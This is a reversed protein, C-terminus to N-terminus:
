DWSLVVLSVGQRPLEFDVTAAGDSAEVERPEHLEALRSAQELEAYQRRGPAVPKGMRLWADYSNSHQKDVRYHSLKAKALSDPLGDIKLAVAADPGALDDDHYHWVLVAVSNDTRSALAGVDPERRVGRRMIRELPLQGSSEATVRQGDMKSMMRFVNLVPMALGNSALQRFGAFYPQDEFTFAWTLAGAFNIGHKDALDHKRAFSAATYSSYMTGNRYSFQDGQCAACGEPDSEGIVIPTDRLQPFEAVIGFGRDITRLQNAIGMRIHDGEWRPAGKAHFSVFDLRTGQEGTAHNTGELCHRYFNRAFDGGDGAVDPGGIRATPLARLVGAIAYDHLKNFEEQTGRWYGINPENWTEWWWSEVEERGYRDVCHQAWQYALEGWKEYDNPPYAWGTYVEEYPMGPRWSHAYPEPRTSLAQPMFGLQVYPRVGRKLYTDFILDVIEWDYVPGGDADETYANTSGWKLAPYAPGTNLLNHTRFFVEGPAMDGLQGLLKRGDKMYAYNPEDAGFFRWIRRLEDQTQDADVKISVSFPGDQQASCRPLGALGVVCSLALTLYAARPDM